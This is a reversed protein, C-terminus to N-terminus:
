VTQACSIVLLFRVHIMMSMVVSVVSTIVLSQQINTICPALSQPTRTTLLSSSSPHLPLLFINIKFITKFVCLFPLLSIIFSFRVVCTVNGGDVFPNNQIQGANREEEENRWWSQPHFLNRTIWPLFPLVRLSSHFVLDIRSVNDEKTGWLLVRTTIELCSSCTHSFLLKHQSIISFLCSGCHAMAIFM